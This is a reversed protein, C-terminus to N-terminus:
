KKEERWFGHAALTIGGPISLILWLPSVLTGLFLSGAILILVGLIYEGRPSIIALWVRFSFLCKFSGLILKLYWRWFEM